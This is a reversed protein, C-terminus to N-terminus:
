IAASKGASSPQGASPRPKRATYLCFADPACRSDAYGPFGPISAPTPLGDPRTELEDRRRHLERIGLPQQRVHSSHDPATDGHVPRITGPGRTITGTILLLFCAGTQKRKRGDATSGAASSRHLIQRATHVTPVTGAKEARARSTSRHIGARNGSTLSRMVQWNRCCCSGPRSCFGAPLMHPSPM